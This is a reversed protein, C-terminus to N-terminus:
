DPVFANTFYDEPKLTGTIVGTDKMSKIASAWDSSAQWGIRKGKTAVTFFYPRMLELQGKIADPDLTMGPRQKIVAQAAEDIHGKWIYEWTEIQVRTFKALMDKRGEFAKISAVLGYSPFNIGYDVLRISKSPRTKEMLPLAYWDLSFFGDAKKARYLSASAPPAVLTVDVSNRDLGAKALFINIFPAWVSGEFDVLKRGKLDALTDIGSDRGVILALDGARVFGAFSKIPLKKERAITVLGLQVQGIDIQDAAVLQITNLSGRGDQVDVELGERSFWGKEKALHLAAHHGNPGIDVRVTVAEAAQSADTFAAVLAASTALLILSRVLTIGHQTMMIVRRQVAIKYMARKPILDIPDIVM